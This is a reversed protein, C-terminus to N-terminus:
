NKNKRLNLRILFEIFSLDRQFMKKERLLYIIEFHFIYAYLTCKDIFNLNNKYSLTLFM